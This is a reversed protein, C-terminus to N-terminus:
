IRTALAAREVETLDWAACVVWMDSRGIQRLLFPDHPPVRTWEAEWLIHYNALGRKPRLHIPVPPVLARGSPPWPEHHATAPFSGAPFHIFARDVRWKEATTSKWHANPGRSDMRASGDRRRDFRTSVADAPAIALKPLGDNNLGALRISELARIVMKGQAIMQFARQIDADMPTQHARHSKYQRYLRLAENRDVKIEQVQM